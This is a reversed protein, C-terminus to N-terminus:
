LMQVGRKSINRQAPQGYVRIPGSGNVLAVVSQRVTASIGGSGNSALDGEESSLGKMDVTGSGSMRVKLTRVAGSAQVFGSGSVQVRAYDGRLQGISLRGSGNVGLNASGTRLEGADVKGSGSVQADLEAVDGYLRTIGSGGQHVNLPAGNLDRVTVSGSGGSRLEVLRPVTYIVRLPTSSGLWGETGIHLTSGRTETRVLHLLNSDGEVVLSPAAGVRVEVIMSGGVNLGTLAAVSRTERAAVGDGKIFQSGFGTNGQNEGGSPLAIVVCGGLVAVCALTLLTRM